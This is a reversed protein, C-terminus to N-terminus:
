ILRRFAELASAASAQPTIEAVRSKAADRIQNMRSRDTSFVRDLSEALSRPEAPNFHWGNKGDTVLTEVAQAHVSGLVPLGVQMAENVVMGWEDAMTPFILIGSQVMKEQIAAPQMHGCIDLQLNKPPEFTVVEKKLPGDGILALSISRQPNVRCYEALANLMPMVGKRETLSGVCLFRFDNEPARVLDVPSTFLDSAAYPYHFCKADPVSLSKLYRHCSPGNYSVADAGKLIRRRLFARASGRGVETRESVCVCVALKKCYRKCYYLSALSRFGLEYSFVIDPSFRKLQSITDYPFHVYLDEAFGAKHKWPRRVMVSQQVSVDLGDWTNGFDRNPEQEISLLVKCERVSEALHYLIRATYPPLYHTLVAIRADLPNM